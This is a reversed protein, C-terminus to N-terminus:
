QDAPQQRITKRLILENGIVGVSQFGLKKVMSIAQSNGPSTKGIIREVNLTHGAFDILLEFAQRMLNKGWYPPLLSGGIEIQRGQPDYHHLAADGIIVEPQACLRITWIFACHTIIRRTFDVATEGPLFPSQDFHGGVEPLAYLAYFAPADALTLRKLQLVGNTLTEM